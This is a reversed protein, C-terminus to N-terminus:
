SIDFMSLPIVWWETPTGGWPGRSKKKEGGKARLIAAVERPNANKMNLSDVMLGFRIYLYGGKINSENMRAKALYDEISEELISPAVFKQAQESAGKVEWYEINEMTYLKWAEAWLQEREAELGAFDLKQAVEVVAYRRYGSPDSQLFEHRNGCGYLTCRRDFVEVSAGYPPRFHDQATTIMAKLFSTEKKGFSDLEDFGIVLASHLKMHLDKDNSEGYLTLSNGNFIVSPMSTKGLSQGGVAILMWDIKTGPKDLRACASVLWKLSVEQTFPTDEVGWLRTLWSSLRKEGDWSLGRVWELFPSRSNKKALAQICSYVMKHGVKEFGLNHQFYNAIEMETLDPTAQDDGIYVRNDDENRWIKPFAQHEEMLKMVNSTTQHVTIVGKDNQRFALNYRKSLLSHSQVLEDISVRKIDAFRNSADGAWEVLLDDIKGPPCCIEVDYGEQKLTHAFTGYANCIDYRFLDGDPVILIKRIGRKALLQIIWPHIGSSGDPNRWMQCGSIGFAPVGIYRLIAATKKEGEACIITDGDLRLTLPHIYPLVTPLGLKQLEERNPQTYRQGKSMPPVQLKVRYFSPNHNADTVFHGDPDCYPILYGADAGKPLSLMGPAVAHMDLPTLGSKALDSEMFAQNTPQRSFFSTQADPVVMKGAHEWGTLYLSDPTM